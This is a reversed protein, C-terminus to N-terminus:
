RRSRRSHATTRSKQLSHMLPLRSPSPFQAPLPASSSQSPAAPQALLSSLSRQHLCPICLLLVRPLHLILHSDPASRDGHRNVGAFLLSWCVLEGSAAMSQIDSSDGIYTSNFWVQPVQPHPIHVVLSLRIYTSIKVQRKWLADVEVDLFFSVTSKGSLSVAQTRRAPESVLIVLLELPLGPHILFTGDSPPSQDTSCRALRTPSSPASSGCSERRQVPAGGASAGHGLRAVDDNVRCCHEKLLAKTLECFQCPLTTFVTVRGIKVSPDTGRM